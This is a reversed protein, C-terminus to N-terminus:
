NTTFEYLSKKLSHHVVHQPTVSSNNASDEFRSIPAIWNTNLTHLEVPQSPKSSSITLGGEAPAEYQPFSTKLTHHLVHKSIRRNDFWNYTLELDETKLSRKLLENPDVFGNGQKNGNFRLSASLLAIGFPTTFPEPLVILIIAIVRIFNRVM